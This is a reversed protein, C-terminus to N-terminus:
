NELSGYDRYKPKSPAAGDTVFQSTDVLQVDGSVAFESQATFSSLAEDIDYLNLFDEFEKMTAQDNSTIKRIAEEMAKAYNVGSALVEKSSKLHKRLAYLELSDSFFKKLVDKKLIGTNTEMWILGQVSHAGGM